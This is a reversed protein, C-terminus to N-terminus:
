EGYVIYCTLGNGQLYVSQCNGDLSLTWFVICWIDAEQDYSVSITDYDITLEFKAKTIADNADKIESAVPINFNEHKVGPDGIKYEELVKAYSFEKIESLFTNQESCRTCSFTTRRDDAIEEVWNHNPLAFDGHTVQEMNCQSCTYLINTSWCDNNEGAYQWEHTHETENTIPPESQSNSTKDEGTINKDEGNLWGLETLSDIVTQPIDSISGGGLKFIAYVGTQGPYSEATAGHVVLIKDGTKLNKFINRNTRNLMVDPSNYVVVINSGNDTEIYRGTSFGLGQVIMYILCTAIVVLIACLVIIPILWKSKKM